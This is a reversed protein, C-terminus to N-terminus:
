ILIDAYDTSNGTSIAAIFGCSVDEAFGTLAGANIANAVLEYVADDSIFRDSCDTLNGDNLNYVEGDIM